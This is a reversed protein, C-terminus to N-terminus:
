QNGPKPLGFTNILGSLEKPTSVRDTCVNATCVFAFADHREPDPALLQSAAL